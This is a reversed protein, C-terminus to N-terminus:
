LQLILGLLEATETHLASGWAGLPIPLGRTQMTKAVQHLQPGGEPAMGAVYLNKKNFLSDLLQKINSGLQLIKLPINQIYNKKGEHKTAFFSCQRNLKSKWIIGLISRHGM